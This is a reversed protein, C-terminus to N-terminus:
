AVSDFIVAGDNRDYLLKEQGSRDPSVAATSKAFIAGNIHHKIGHIFKLNTGTPAATTYCVAGGASYSRGKVMVSGAPLGATANVRHAAGTASIAWGLRRRATEAPATSSTTLSGTAGREFGLVRAM